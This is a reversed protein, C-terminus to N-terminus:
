VLKLSNDDNFIWYSVMIDLFFWSDLSLNNIVLKIVLDFSLLWGFRMGLILFRTSLVIFGYFWFGRALCGFVGKSHAKFCTARLGFRSDVTGLMRYYHIYKFPYVWMCSVFHPHIFKNFVYMCWKTAPLIIFTVNEM